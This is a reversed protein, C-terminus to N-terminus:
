KFFHWLNIVVRPTCSVRFIRILLWMGHHPIREWFRFIVAELLLFFDYLYFWIFYLGNIIELDCYFFPGINLRKELLRIFTNWKLHILDNIKLAQNVLYYYAPVASNQCLVSSHQRSCCIGVLSWRSWFPFM